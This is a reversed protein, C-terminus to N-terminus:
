LAFCLFVSSMLSKTIESKRGQSLRHMTCKSVPATCQASHSLLQHSYLLDLQTGFRPIFCALRCLQRSQSLWSGLQETRAMGEHFPQTVTAGLNRWGKMTRSFSSSRLWSSPLRSSSLLCQATVNLARLIWSAFCATKQGCPVVDKLVDITVKASEDPLAICPEPHRLALNAERGRAAAGTKAGKRHGAQGKTPQPAHTVHPLEALRYAAVKALWCGVTLVLNAHTLSINTM